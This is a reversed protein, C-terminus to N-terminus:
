DTVVETVLSFNYTWQWSFNDYNYITIVGKFVTKNMTCFTNNVISSQSNNNESESVWRCQLSCYEFYRLSRAKRDLGNELFSSHQDTALSFDVRHGLSTQNRSFSPREPGTSVPSRHCVSRAAEMYLPLCWWGRSGYGKSCKMPVM